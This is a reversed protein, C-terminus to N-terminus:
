RRQPAGARLNFTDAQANKTAMGATRSRQIAEPLEALFRDIDESTTHPGFSVRISGRAAQPSYGMALLVHSPETVGATCASGASVAIGASDLLMLLSESECGEVTFHTTSPIAPVTEPTTLTLHPSLAVLQQRLQHALTRHTDVTKALESTTHQLAAAFAAALAPSPTGSRLDREQGGGHIQAGIRSDRATVLAGIGIPAGIKHGAISMTNVGLERYSVPMHGLAAVADCHMPIALPQCLAALERVPQIVGTENNALMCTLLQIQTHQGILTSTAATDVIGHSDIPLPLVSTHGEHHCHQVSDLVSHHETPNYITVPSLAQVLQPAAHAALTGKIALNDAETGGSTFIIESPHADVCEAIQERSDDLIRRAARGFQHVSAPNGIQSSAQLFSEAAVPLLPSSAAHDLYTSM